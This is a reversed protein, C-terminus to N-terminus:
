SSARDIKEVRVAYPPSELHNIESPFQRWMGTGNRRPYIPSKVRLPGVTTPRLLSQPTQGPRCPRQQVNRRTNLTAIGCPLTSAKIRHDNGHVGRYVIQIPRKVWMTALRELAINSSSSLDKLIDSTVPEVYFGAPRACGQPAFGM